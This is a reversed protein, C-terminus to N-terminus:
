MCEELFQEFNEYGTRARLVNLLSQEDWGFIDTVFQLEEETAINYTILIDYMSLIGYRSSIDTM